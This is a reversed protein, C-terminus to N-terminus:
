AAKQSAEVPVVGSSGPPGATHSQNADKAFRAAMGALFMVWESTNKPVGQEQLATLILSAGDVVMIASGLYGTIPSSGGLIKHLWSLLEM